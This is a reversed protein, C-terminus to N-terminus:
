MFLIITAIGLSLGHLLMTAILNQTKHYVYGLIIGFYLTIPYLLWHSLPSPWMHGLSFFAASVLIALRYDMCRELKSQILGRCVLEEVIGPDILWILLIPLSNSLTVEPFRYRPLEAGPAGAGIMIVVFISMLILGLLAAKGLNQRTIGLDRFSRKRIYSFVGAIVLALGLKSVSVVIQHPIRPLAYFNFAPFIGKFILYDLGEM